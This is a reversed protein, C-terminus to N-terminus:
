PEKLRPKNATRVADRRTLGPGRTLTNGQFCLTHLKEVVLFDNFCASFFEM